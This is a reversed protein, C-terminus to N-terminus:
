PASWGRRLRSVLKRAVLPGAKVVGLAQTTALDRRRRGDVGVVHVYLSREGHLCRVQDGGHAGPQGVLELM